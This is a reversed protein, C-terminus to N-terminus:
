ASLFSVRSVSACEPRTHLREVLARNSTRLVVQNPGLDLSAWPAHGEPINNRRWADYVFRIGVSGLLGALGVGFLVEGGREGLARIFLDCVGLGIMILPLALLCGFGLRLWRPYALHKTCAPCCPVELPDSYAELGSGTKFSARQPTPQDCCLCLEGFDVPSSRTAGLTAAARLVEGATSREPDRLVVLYYDGAAPQPLGPQEQASPSM